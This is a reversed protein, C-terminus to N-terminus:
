KLGENEKKRKTPCTAVMKAKGYECCSCGDIRCRRTAVFYSGQIKEAHPCVCAEAEEEQKQRIELRRFTAQLDESDSM